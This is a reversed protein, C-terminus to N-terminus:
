SGKRNFGFLSEQKPKDNSNAELHEYSAEKILDLELNISIRIASIMNAVNGPDTRPDGKIDFLDEYFETVIDHLRVTAVRYTTGLQEKTLEKEVM